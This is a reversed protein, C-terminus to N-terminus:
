STQENEKSGQGLVGAPAWHAFLTANSFHEKCCTEYLKLAWKEYLLEKGGRFASVSLTM